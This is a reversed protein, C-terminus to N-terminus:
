ASDEGGPPLLRMLEKCLDVVDNATSLHAGVAQAVVPETDAEIGEARVAKLHARMVSAVDHLMASSQQLSRPSLPGPIDLAKHTSEVPSVEDGQIKAYDDSSLKQLSGPPPVLMPVGYSNGAVMPLSCQLMAEATSGVPAISPSAAQPEACEALARAAETRAHSASQGSPMHSDNHGQMMGHPGGHRQGHDVIRSAPDVDVRKLAAPDGTVEGSGEGDEEGDDADEDESAHTEDDFKADDRRKKGKHGDDDDQEPGRISRYKQLHSKVNAKTLWPVNMIQLIASPKANEFGLAAVATEFRQHLDATWVLRKKPTYTPWTLSYDSPRPTALAVHQQPHHPHQPPYGHGPLHMLPPPPPM